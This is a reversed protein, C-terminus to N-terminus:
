WQEKLKKMRLEDQYKDRAAAIANVINEATWDGENLADAIVFPGHKVRHLERVHACSGLAPFFSNCM